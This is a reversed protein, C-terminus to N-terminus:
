LLPNYNRGGEKAQYLQWIPGKIIDEQGAEHNIFLVVGYKLHLSTEVTIRCWKEQKRTLLYPGGSYRPNKRCCSWVTCHLKKDVDLESLMLGVFEDRRFAAVTDM